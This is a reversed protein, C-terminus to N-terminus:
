GGDGYTLLAEPFAKIVADRGEPTLHDGLTGKELEQRATQCADMLIDLHDFALQAPLNSLPFLGGDSADDGYEPSVDEARVVTVYPVSLVRGRPDRHVDDRLNCRVLTGVEVGTEESLERRAAEELTEDLNLFGGPLAWAGKFPDAGRQVLPLLLQEGDWALVIIDVTVSPKPYDKDPM